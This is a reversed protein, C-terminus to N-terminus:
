TEVAQTKVGALNGDADLGVIYIDIRTRGIRFVRLGKLNSELLKRLEAFKEANKKQSATFWEHINTVQDFFKGASSEEAPTDENKGIAELFTKKNLRGTKGGHFPEVEADIESLLITGQCATGIRESLEDKSDNEQNANKM